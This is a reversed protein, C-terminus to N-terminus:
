VKKGFKEDSFIQAFKTQCNQVFNTLFHRVRVFNTLGAFFTHKGIHPHSKLKKQRSKVNQSFLRDFITNGVPVKQKACLKRRIKKDSMKACFKDSITTRWFNEAFKKDLNSMKCLNQGFKDFKSLNQCIQRIKTCCCVSM